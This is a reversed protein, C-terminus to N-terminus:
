LKNLVHYCNRCVPIYNDAGIVIQESEKSIRYSFLAPTGDRCDACLSVLKKVSNCYPILKLLDGFPNRKYDGDLGCIHVEKRYSEVMEKVVEFIDSFFQGENILIIDADRINRYFEHNENHWIESLTNIFICPVTIKDHTSLMTESYRKDENYNLIVVRKGIYTKTKYIQILKTTKGSFMPGLYLSLSGSYSM